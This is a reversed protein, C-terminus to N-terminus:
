GNSVVYLWYYLPYCFFIVGFIWIYELEINFETKAIVYILLIISLIPLILGGYKFGSLIMTKTEKEKIEFEIVRSSCWDIKSILKHKGPVLDYETTEGNEVTGIKEGDVYIGFNRMMNNWESSRKIILKAM